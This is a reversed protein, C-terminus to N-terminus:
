VYAFKMRKNHWKLDPSHSLAPPSPSLKIGQWFKGQRPRARLWKCNCTYVWSVQWAWLNRHIMDSARQFYIIILSYHFIAAHWKFFTRICNFKLEWPRVMDITLMWQHCLGCKLLPPNFNTFNTFPHSVPNWQYLPHNQIPRFPPDLSLFPHTKITLLICVGIEPIINAMFSTDMNPSFIFVLHLTVISPLWLPVHPGFILVLIHSKTKSSINLM